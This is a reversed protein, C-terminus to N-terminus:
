NVLLSEQNTTMQFLLHIASIELMLDKVLEGGSLRLSVFSM